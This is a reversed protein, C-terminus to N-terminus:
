IARQPTRASTRDDAEHLSSPQGATSNDAAPAHIGSFDIQPDIRRLAHDAPAPRQPSPRGVRPDQGSRRGGAVRGSQGRISLYSGVGKRSLRRPLKCRM